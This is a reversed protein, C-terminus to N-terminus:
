HVPAADSASTSLCVQAETVFEFRNSVRSAEPLVDGFGTAELYSSLADPWIARYTGAVDPISLQPYVRGGVCGATFGLPREWTEGPSVTIPPTECQLLIPTWVTRWGGDILKQLGMGTMGLCNVVYVTAGTRNTFTFHMRAAYGDGTPRLTYRLSDSQFLADADRTLEAAASPSIADDRCAVGALLVM